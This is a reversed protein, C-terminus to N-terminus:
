HGLGLNGSVNLDLHPLIGFIKCLDTVFVGIFSSDNMCVEHDDLIDKSIDERWLTNFDKVGGLNTSICGFFM